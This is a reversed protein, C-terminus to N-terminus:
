SLALRRCLSSLAASDAGPGCLPPAGSSPPLIFLYGVPVPPVPAHPWVSLTLQNKSPVPRSLFQMLSMYAPWFFRSFRARGSFSDPFVSVARGVASLLALFVVKQPPLASLFVSLM